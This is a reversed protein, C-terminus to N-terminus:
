PKVKCSAIIQNLCNMAESTEKPGSSRGGYRAQEFLRTLTRVPEVPMSHRDIYSIFETPTMSRSRTIGRHHDFAEGMEAYCRIVADGWDYGSELDQLTRRAIRTLEQNLTPEQPRLFYWALWGIVGAASLTFFIVLFVFWQPMEPAIFEDPIEDNGSGISASPAPPGSAGIEEPPAYFYALIAYMILVQVGFSLVNMLVRKSAKRLFIVIMIVVMAAIFFSVFPQADPDVESVLAPLEVAPQDGLDEEQGGEREAPKLDVSELGSVLPFLTLLALIAAILVM